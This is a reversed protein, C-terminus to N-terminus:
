KNNTHIRFYKCNSYTICLYKNILSKLFSTKTWLNQEHEYNLIESNRNKDNKILSKISNPYKIVYFVIIFSTSFSQIGFNNLIIYKEFFRIKVVFKVKRVKPDLRQLYSVELHLLFM